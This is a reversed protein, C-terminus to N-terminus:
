WSALRSGTPHIDRTDNHDVAAPKTGDAEMVLIEGEGFPRFSPSAIATPHGCRTPTRRRTSPSGRRPLTRGTMPSTFERMATAPPSLSWPTVTPHGPRPTTRRQSNLWREEVVKGRWDDGDEPRVLYIDRNGFRGPRLRHCRRRVVMGPDSDAGDTLQLWNVGGPNRLWLGQKDDGRHGPSFWGNGTPLGTAWASGAKASTIRTAGGGELGSVYIDAEGNFDSVYSLKDGELNWLAGRRQERCRQGEPSVSLTGGQGEILIVDVDRNGSGDTM